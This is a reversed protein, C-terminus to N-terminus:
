PNLYEAIGVLHNQKYIFLISDNAADYILTRGACSMSSIPWTLAVDSEPSVTYRRLVGANCYYIIETDDSSDDPNGLPIRRYAFASATFPLTAITTMSGSPSLGRIQSSQAASALVWRGLAPPTADDDFAPDWSPTLHYVPSYFYPVACSTGALGDACFVDAAPGTVGALGSQEGTSKDYLKLFADALTRLDPDYAGVGALLKTGDFGFVLPPYYPFLIQSGLLGDGSMYPTTGTGAIDIWSAGPDNTNLRSILNGRNFFLDGNTPDIALSDWYVGSSRLYIPQTRGPDSANPIASTGTGALTIITGGPTFRRVRAEQADLVVVDGNNKRRLDNVTNFRASLPAGGDGFSLRQGLLTLVKDDDDITRILGHDVFYIYHQQSVDVDFLDVSCETALTGDACQGNTGTGLLTTWTNSGVNYRSLLGFQRSVAYLEGDRGIVRHFLSDSNPLLQPPSTPATIGTVPDLGVLHVLENILTVGDCHDTTEDVVVQMSTRLASVTDFTFGFSLQPCSQINPIGAHPGSPAISGVLGSGADYVRIRKPTGSWVTDGSEFYVDGDPLAAFVGFRQGAFGSPQVIQVEAAPVGDADSLGGGIFTEITMADLDIRRIKDKDYILLHNAYDRVLKMPQGLTAASVPGPDTSSTGTTPILLRQVGDAFDVALLGRRVDLYYIIGDDTVALTNPSAVSTDTESYTFFVAAAGSGGLGPETNGALFNIPPWLNLANTPTLVVTGNHDTVQVRVKFYGAPADDWVYCGSRPMMDTTACAGNPAPTLTCDAAAANEIGSAIPLYTVDDQTYLLDVPGPDLGNPASEINWKIYVSESPAVTVDAQSLPACPNDVSTATTNVVVPPIGPRYEIQAKDTGLEGAGAATLDSINGARDEVWAYVTYTAATFGIRFTLPPLTGTQQPVIPVFCPNNSSPKTANNTRFCVQMIDSLNDDVDLSIQVFNVNTSPAGGNITMQSISPPAFDITFDGSSPAFSQRGALDTAVVRVRYQADNAAPVAWSYTGSNTLSGEVTLWNQGSDESRQITIPTSGFNSDSAVYTVLVPAGGRITEGGQLSTLTVAPALADYFMAVDSSSISVNGVADKFWAHLGHSGDGSVQYAIAGTTTACPQWGPTADAPASGENVLVAARDSCDAATLAVNVDTSPTASALTVGSPLPPTSDITFSLSSSVTTRQGLVDVASVSVRMVTNDIPPLTWTFSGSNALGTALPTWNVGDDLSYALDIPLTVLHEDSATYVIAHQTGGRYAGAADFSGLTVAPPTQDLTVLLQVLDSLQGVPDSFWVYVDHAGDGSLTYGINGPVCTAVMPPSTGDAILIQQRDDCHSVGILVNPDNTLAPSVLTVGDFAPRTADVAFYGSVASSTLGARDEATVRLRAASLPESPATWLYVAVGPAIDAVPAFADGDSALELSIRRIEGDDTASFSLALSAGAAVVAPLDVLTVVPPTTDDFDGSGTGGTNNTGSGGSLGVTSRNDQSCAATLAGLLVVIPIRRVCLTVLRLSVKRFTM